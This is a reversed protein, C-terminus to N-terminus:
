PVLLLDLPKHSKSIKKWNQLGRKLFFLIFDFLLPKLPVEALSPQLRPKTLQHSLRGQALTGPGAAEGAERQWVQPGETLVAQRVGTTDRQKAPVILGARVRSGM